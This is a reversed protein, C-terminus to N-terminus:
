KKVAKDFAKILEDTVDRQNAAYAIGEGMKFLYDYKQKEAFAGLVPQFQLLVSRTMEADYLKLEDQYSGLLRQLERFKAAAEKDKTLVADPITEGEKLSDAATKVEDKLKELVQTRQNIEDQYAQAKKLYLERADKGAQSQSVLRQLDFHGVKLDAAVCPHGTTLILLVLFIMKKM